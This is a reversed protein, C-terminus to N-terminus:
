GSYGENKGNRILPKLISAEALTLNPWKDDVTLPEFNYELTAANLELIKEIAKAKDEDTEYTVNNRDDVKGNHDDIIKKFQERYTKSRKEILEILDLIQFIDKTPFPRNSDTFLRVAAKSLLAQQEDNSLKIM